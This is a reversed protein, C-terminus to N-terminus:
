IKWKRKCATNNISVDENESLLELEESTNYYKYINEKNVSVYDEAPVQINIIKSSNQLAVIHETDINSNCSFNMENDDDRTIGYNRNEVIKELINKMESQSRKHALRRKHRDTYEITYEM